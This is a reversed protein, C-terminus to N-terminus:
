PTAVPPFRYEAARGCYSPPLTTLPHRCVQVVVRDVRATSSNAGLAFEFGAVANDARRAQRDVERNGSFAVFTAVSFFGDDRCVTGPDTPLPRDALRGKVAVAAVPLPSTGFRWTLSGETFGYRCNDGSDASFPQSILQEAHGMTPMALVAGFIATAVAIVHRIRMKM